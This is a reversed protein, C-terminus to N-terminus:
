CAEFFFIYLDSEAGTMYDFLTGNFGNTVGVYHKKEKALRPIYMHDLNM